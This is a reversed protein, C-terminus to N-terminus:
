YKLIVKETGPQYDVDFTLYYKKKKKDNIKHTSVTKQTM